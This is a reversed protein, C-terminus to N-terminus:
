ALSPRTFGHQSPMSHIKSGPSGASATIALIIGCNVRGKPHCPQKLSLLLFAKGAFLTAPMCEKLTILGQSDGDVRDASGPGASPLLGEGWCSSRGLEMFDCAQEQHSTTVSQRSLVGGLDRPKEMPEIYSMIMSIRALCKSGKLM